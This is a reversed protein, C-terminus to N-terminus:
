RRDAVIVSSSEIRGAFHTSANHHLRSSRSSALINRSQILIGERHVPPSLEADLEPVFAMAAAHRGRNRVNGAALRM